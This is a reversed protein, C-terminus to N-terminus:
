RDKSCDNSEHGDSQGRNDKSDRIDNKGELGSLFALWHENLDEGLISRAKNKLIEGLERARNFLFANSGYAVMNWRKKDFHFVILARKNQKIALDRLMGPPIGKNKGM